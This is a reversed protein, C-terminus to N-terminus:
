MLANQEVRQKVIQQLMGCRANACSMILEILLKDSERGEDLRAAM